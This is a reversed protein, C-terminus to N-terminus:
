VGDCVARERRVHDPPATRGQLERFDLVPPSNTFAQGTGEVLDQARVQKGGCRNRGPLPSPGMSGELLFGDSALFRPGKRSPSRTRKSQPRVGTSPITM